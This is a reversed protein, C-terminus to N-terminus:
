INVPTSTRRSKRVKCIDKMCFGYICAIQVISISRYPSDLSFEVLLFIDPWLYLSISTLSLISAM